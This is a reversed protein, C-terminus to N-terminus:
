SRWDKGINQFPFKKIGNVGQKNSDVVELYEGVKINLAWISVKPHRFGQLRRKAKSGNKLQDMDTIRTYCFGDIYGDLAKTIFQSLSTTFMLTSGNHAITTLLDLLTDNMRKSYFPVIKSLEDCGIVADKLTAVEDITNVAKFGKIAKPYGFLYKVRQSKSKKMLYFMLNTKGSHRGGLIALTQIRDLDIRVM